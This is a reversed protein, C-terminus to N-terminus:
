RRSLTFEAEFVSVHSEVKCGLQGLVVVLDKTDTHTKKLKM